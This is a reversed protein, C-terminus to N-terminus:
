TGTFIVDGPVLTTGQSLLSIAKRIGFIMDATTQNQVTQGNVKTSIRLRQADGIAAGTVIGPGWPAWGDYGKGLSWQGGGRKIQWDRHSVDNGVAYGLM